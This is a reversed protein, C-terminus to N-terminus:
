LGEERRWRLLDNYRTKGIELDHRGTRQSRKQFVHLVYVAEAFKAVYFVRFAGGEDWVRIEQVGSESRRCRSGIMRSKGKNFKSCNSDLRKRSVTRFGAFIM